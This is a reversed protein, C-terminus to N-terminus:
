LITRYHICLRLLAIKVKFTGDWDSSIVNIMFNTQFVQQGLSQVGSRSLLQLVGKGRISFKMIAMVM